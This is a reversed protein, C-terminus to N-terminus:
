LVPLKVRVSGNFREASVTPFVVKINQSKVVVLATASKVPLLQPPTAPEKVVKLSKAVRIAKHDEASIASELSVGM